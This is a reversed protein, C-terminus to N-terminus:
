TRSRTSTRRPGSLRSRPGPVRAERRPVGRASTAITQLENAGIYTSTTVTQVEARGPNTDWEVQYSQVAAGGDTMPSAWALALSDGSVVELLADTPASPVQLDAAGPLVTAALAVLFKL